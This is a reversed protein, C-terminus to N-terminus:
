LLFQKALWFKLLLEDKARKCEKMKIDRLACVQFNQVYETVYHLVRDPEFTAFRWTKLPDQM